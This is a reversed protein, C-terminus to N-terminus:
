RRCNMHPAIDRNDAASEELIKNQGEVLLIVGQFYTQLRSPMALFTSRLNHLVNERVTYRSM